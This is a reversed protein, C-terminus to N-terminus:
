VFWQTADMDPIKHLKTINKEVFKVKKSDHLKLSKRYRSNITENDMLKLFYNANSKRLLILNHLNLKKKISVKGDLIISSVLVREIATKEKLFLFNGYSLMMRSLETKHSMEATSYIYELFVNINISYFSIFEEIAVDGLLVKKRIQLVEKYFEELSEHYSEFASHEISRIFQDLSKYVSDTIKRQEDLRHNYINKKSYFYTATIGREKQLEHVFSAVKENIMNIKEIKNANEKKEYKSVVNLYSFYLISVLPLILILALKFKITLNNLM